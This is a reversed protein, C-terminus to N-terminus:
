GQLENKVGPNAKLDNSKCQKILKAYWHGSDKIIRKQTKYDVHILGFTKSYGAAWEFNDLLSWAFYGRMDSGAMKANVVEQFYDTFYEIRKPDKVRGDEVKDDFAAGNETIFVPPNGYDERLWRLVEAMGPPYVEWGMSTYRKGNRESESEAVSTGSIWSKLFPVYWRYSSYECNYHNIGVFDTKEGILELDGAEVKPWFWRLQKQLLEPYTKKYLPDLTIFSVLENGLKAAWQDKASDTAPRIPTLSLTIGANADPAYHRIRQMAAGHGMLQHHMVKLFDGLSHHGPAHSGIFHGLAAHEFPENLTIWDKARDGLNKVVVEVYDAFIHPLERSRFGGKSKYLASPLDWHFLTAFPRIGKELLEDVLKKYFDLGAENIKGQGDPIIRPWSISFRYADLNLDKMLQIDQPYRRYHDCAVEGTHGGTIKGKKASFEDWISLGRGDAHTSGEIQYSSTAAGFVFDKSIVDLNKLSM